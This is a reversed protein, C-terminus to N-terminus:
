YPTNARVVGMLCRGLAISRNSNTSSPARPRWLQDVASRVRGRRICREGVGSWRGEVDAQRDTISLARVVRLGAGYGDSRGRDVRWRRRAEGASRTVESDREGRGVVLAGGVDLRLRDGRSRRWYPVLDEQAHAPPGDALLEPYEATGLIVRDDVLRARLHPYPEVLAARM